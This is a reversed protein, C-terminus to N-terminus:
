RSAGSATLAHDTPAAGGRLHVRAHAIADPTTAFVHGDARLRDLTGLANLPRHHEDRIGSVLVLTGRRRLETIADGLVTAGSADIASVRSMRLIAVKVETSKTLELLFRHAAAFLLPGDIRYAVIHEALLPQKEDHHDAPPLDSYLPVQEVRATRA